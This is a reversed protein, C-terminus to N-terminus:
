AIAPVFLASGVERKLFYDEFENGKRKTVDQAHGGNAQGAITL